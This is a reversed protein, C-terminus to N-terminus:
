GVRIQWGRGDWAANETAGALGDRDETKAALTDQSRMATFGLGDGDDLAGKLLAHSVKFGGAYALLM